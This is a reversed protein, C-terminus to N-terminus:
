RGKAAGEVSFWGSQAIVEGGPALVEVQAKLRTLKGTVSAPPVALTVPPAATGDPCAIQQRIEDSGPSGSLRVRLTVPQTANRCRLPVQIDASGSADNKASQPQGLFVVLPPPGGPSAAPDPWRSGYEQLIEGYSRQTREQRTQWRPHTSFFALVRSSDGQTRRLLQHLAIMFDPHFGARAMLMAGALDAQHERNRQVKGFVLPLALQLSIKDWNPHRLLVHAIEHSLVAAWLGRDTHLLRALGGGVWVHGKSDSHANVSRDELLAFRWELGAGSEAVQPSKVLERFVENGTM